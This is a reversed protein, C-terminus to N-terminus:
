TYQPYFGHIIVFDLCFVPNKIKASIKKRNWFMKVKRSFNEAKKPFNTLSKRAKWFIELIERSKQFINLSSPFCNVGTYQLLVKKRWNMITILSGGIICQIDKLWERVTFPHSSKLYLVYFLSFDFTPLVSYNWYLM